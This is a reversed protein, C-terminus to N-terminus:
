NVNVSSVSEYKQIFQLQYIDKGLSKKKVINALKVILKRYKEIFNM